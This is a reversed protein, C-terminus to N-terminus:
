QFPFLLEVGVGKLGSPQTRNESTVDKFKYVEWGDDGNRMRYRSAFRFLLDLNKGNDTAAEKGSAARLLRADTEPSGLTPLEFSYAAIESAPASESSEPRRPAAAPEKLEAPILASAPTVPPPAFAPRGPVASGCAAALSAAWTLGSCRDVVPLTKQSAASNVPDLAYSLSLSQAGAAASLACSWALLAATFCPQRLGTIIIMGEGASQPHRVIM